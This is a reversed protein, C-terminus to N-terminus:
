GGLPRCVRQGSVQCQWLRRAAADPGRSEAQVSAAQHTSVGEQAYPAGRFGALSKGAGHLAGHLDTGSVGEGGNRGAPGRTNQVAPGRRGSGEARGAM